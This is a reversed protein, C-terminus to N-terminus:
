VGELQSRGVKQETKRETLSFSLSFYFRIIVFENDTFLALKMRNNDGHDISTCPCRM